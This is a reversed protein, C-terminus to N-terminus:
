VINTEIWAKYKLSEREQLFERFSFDQTFFTVVLNHGGKPLCGIRFITGPNSLTPIQVPYSPM